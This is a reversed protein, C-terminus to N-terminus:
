GFIFINSWDYSEPKVPREASFGKVYLCFYVSDGGLIKFYYVEGSDISVLFRFIVKPSDM